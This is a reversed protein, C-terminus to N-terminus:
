KHLTQKIENLVSENPKEKSSFYLKKGNTRTFLIYSGKDQNIIMKIVEGQTTKFFGKRIKGVAFGNTKFSIQPLSNVIEISKIESQNLNEGYSGTFEISQKHIILKDEKMGIFMAGIIFILTTLLLYRGLKNWKTKINKSFKNSSWLFYIYALIPYIGIFVGATEENVWYYLLLGLVLFSIGLFLHFKRFYPIYGKIDFKQQDEEKMTNYGSLLYKANNETVISGIAIFLLSMGIFLYIM